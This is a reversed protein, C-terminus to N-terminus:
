EGKHRKDVMDIREGIWKMVNVVMSNGCAKYRHTDAAPKKRYQVLTHNDPFGMLRECEIPMLRRVRYGDSVAHVSTGSMLTYSLGDNRWGVGEPGGKADVSRIASDQICVVNELGGNRGVPMAKDLKTIPDQSGHCVIPAEHNCTLTPCKNDMTEAGAQGNAMVIVCDQGRIDGIRSTGVGSARLCPAINYTSEQWAPRRPVSDGQVGESEFLVERASEWDGFCGVVFVRRRHQPVGFKESNLVRYAFGYGLEALGGLFSGFDRGGNSSLVGPVNEWVIWKPKYKAIVGLFVLMLNGRPDELGKRMGAVSFSQCPTGGALVDIEANPWDKFNNMDGHNPVEPWHHNLVTCPFEDIESFFQARWGLDGWALSAAEVGSCVSGYKM